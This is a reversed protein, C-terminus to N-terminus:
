LVKKFGLLVTGDYVTSLPKRNQVKRTHFLHGSAQRNKRPNM